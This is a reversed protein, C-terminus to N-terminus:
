LPRPRKFIWSPLSTGNPYNLSDKLLLLAIREEELCGLPLWGQLSVMIVFVMLMQLFLGMKILYLFKLSSLREMLSLISNNFHNLELDLHELHNIKITWLWRYLFIICQSLTVSSFGKCREMGDIDVFYGSDQRFTYKCLGKCTEMGDIDVDEQTELM